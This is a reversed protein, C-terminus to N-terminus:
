DQQAATKQMSLPLYREVPTKWSRFFEMPDQTGVFERALALRKLVEQRQEEPLDQARSQVRSFFQELSVVRAWDEIVKALQERSEKISEAVRRRDQEQRWREQQAEWEQRRLEAQREEEQVKAILVETSHEISKVMKPIDTTLTRDKSEQFLISWDVGRYPAYVVLRLRGCPIDKTTTWSHDVYRASTKPPKYDSERIYKGNVYRLAVSESMEIVALGFAVSGVYVVTPRQPSWLRNYDYSHEKRPVKPLEEDDDIRPRTFNEATSSILVRYGASELANFLDNAFGLAKDLAASSATVDVLLKKYPRLHQGEDVKYGADYHGKASRILGHVGTVAPLPRKRPPSPRPPAILRPRPSSQAEGDQCWSIQDGPRLDPLSPKASAKGVALKAWYGREPRPVNLNACVRAMYSGSVKFKEAVKVMPMSWVLEYLEERSVVDAETQADRM